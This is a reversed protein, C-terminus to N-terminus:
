MMMIPEVARCPLEWWNERDMPVNRWNKVGLARIDAGDERKLKPRGIKRIGKPRTDFVKKVTTSKEMHIIHGAWSLRNIKIYKIIDPENSLKYLEYNCRKRWASKDQVAGFICRLVRPYCGPRLPM